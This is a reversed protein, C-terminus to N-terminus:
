HLGALVQLEHQAARLIERLLELVGVDTRQVQQQGEQLRRLTLAVLMQFVLLHGDLLEGVVDAMVPQIVFRVARRGAM